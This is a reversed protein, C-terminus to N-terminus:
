FYRPPTVSARKYLDFEYSLMLEHTGFQNIDASTPYEIAYGLRFQDKIVWQVIAAMTKNTRYMGGVWFKDFFIVNGSIDLQPKTSQAVKILISPKIVIDNPLHFAYGGTLYLYRIEALSSYNSRNEKFSNKIIQPISLSIYYNPTYMFAGVGWTAMYKIDVDEQFNHDPFNVPDLKYDNLANSFNLVGAKLGLRLMHTMSLKVKYSYDVTISLRKAYGYLDNIVNFGIGNNENKIPSYFSISQNLPADTNGVYYKKLLMQFSVKDWMGSYAPNISQVNTIYQTFIPDTQGYALHSKAGFVFLLGIFFRSFLKSYKIKNPEM